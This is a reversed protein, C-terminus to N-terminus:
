SVPVRWIEDCYERITRDSSFKGSRATNLVSMRSWRPMDAYASGVQAQVTSYSSFDALVMYSDRHLLDSVLPAFLERDGNSFRGDRLGDLVERLLPDRDYIEYPRYGDAQIQEVEKATLGFLFFNEEGVEKQIEINADDMTGITLAGNMQMKMCGTGSAEKGATSIQESLDAAPYIRQGLSVNYDPAFVVKLLDRTEPDANVADAVSCVLKIMLKAMTYSPAAKGGFLFTRAPINQLTGSKLQCYLSLIHLANLHQRKYEHIRKVQTDFMSKPDVEIKTTEKIYNALSAKATEQTSRWRQLFGSDDAFTELGSLEYLDTHWNTGIAEDILAALPPNSLVLWRRPTVGNTKNNFRTPFAQYFDRLTNEELLQTHLEAVGNVAKSGVVALNAMRVSREGEEGILSMRRIKDEDNPFARRMEDLFRHNIEFIIELHRPLMEAFLPLQWRELAEPLLTHNTYGFTQQTVNWGTEWGFGHEDLLLRMLEAIGISPHTDNLQVSWKLHFEELPRKQQLHIRIMDQLSCSTFFYQQQLRLRKGQEKDDSPYLVKSITESQMKERVAGMYDGTDFTELDFSDVAEAKWL